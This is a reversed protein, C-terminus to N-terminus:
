KSRSKKESHRRVHGDELDVTQVGDKHHFTWRETSVGDRESKKITDPEGYIDRVQDANMGTVVKAQVKAKRVREANASKSEHRKIWERNAKDRTNKDKVQKKDYEAAMRKEFESAKVVNLKPLEKPQATESCPEDTYITRGGVECRYVEAQAAGSVFSLIWFWRM